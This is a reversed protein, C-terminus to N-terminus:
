SQHMIITSPDKIHMIYIIIHDKKMHICIPSRPKNYIHYLFYFKEGCMIKSLRQSELPTSKSQAM